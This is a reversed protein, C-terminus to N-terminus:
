RNLFNMVMVAGLFAAVLYLVQRPKSRNNLSM